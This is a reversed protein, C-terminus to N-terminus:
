VMLSSKDEVHRASHYKQWFNYTDIIKKTIVVSKIESVEEFPKDLCASRIKTLKSILQEQTGEFKIDYHITLGM